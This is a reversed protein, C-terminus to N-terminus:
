AIVMIASTICVIMTANFVRRRSAIQVLVMEPLDELLIEAAVSLRSSVQREAFVAWLLPLDLRGLHAPDNGDGM